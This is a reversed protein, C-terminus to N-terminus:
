GKSKKVTEKVETAPQEETKATVKKSGPKRGRKKPTKEEASTEAVPEEQPTVAVPAAEKVTEAATAPQPTNAELKQAKDKTATYVKDGENKSTSVHDKAHSVKM